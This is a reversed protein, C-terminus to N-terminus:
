KVFYYIDATLSIQGGTATTDEGAGEQGIAFGVSRIDMLRQHQEIVSLLRKLSAYDQSGNLSLNLQIVRLNKNLFVAEANKQAQQILDKAVAGQAAATGAVAASAQKQGEDLIGISQMEYGADNFLSSMEIFLPAVDHESPLVQELQTIKSDSIQRFADLSQRLRGLYEEAERTQQRERDLTILGLKSVEQWKPALLTLTGVALVLLVVGILVWRFHKSLFVTIATFRLQLKM